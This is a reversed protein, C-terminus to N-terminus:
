FKKVVLFYDDSGNVFRSQRSLLSNDLWNVIFIPLYSLAFLFVSVSLVASWFWTRYFFTFSARPYVVFALFKITPIFMLAVFALVMAIVRVDLSLYFYISGGYLGLYCGFRLIDILFNFAVGNVDNRCTVFQSATTSVIFKKISHSNPLLYGNWVSRIFIYLQRRDEENEMYYEFYNFRLVQPGRRENLRELFHNMCNVALESDFSCLLSVLFLYTPLFLSLFMRWFNKPEFIYRPTYGPTSRGFIHDWVLISAFNTNELIAVSSEIDNHNIGFLHSTSSIMEAKKEGSGIIKPLLSWDVYHDHM